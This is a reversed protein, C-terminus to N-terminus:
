DNLNQSHMAYAKDSQDLILPWKSSKTSCTSGIKSLIEAAKEGSKGQNAFYTERMIKRGIAKEQPKTLAQHCLDPLKNIDEFTDSAGRYIGRIEPISFNLNPNEFWIIPRDLLSYTTLISSHDSILLDSAQLLKETNEHPLFYANSFRNQISKLEKILNKNFAPTQQYGEWLWPHGTQVINYEPFVQCLLDFIDHGFTRLTSVSEWHSAILITTRDNLALEQRIEERPYPKNVLTDSKPFGIPFFARKQDFIGPELKEFHMREAQSLGFFIDYNKVLKIKKGMIGFGPGHHMGIHLANRKPYFSNIHSDIFLHWKKYVARNYPIYHRKFIDYENINNFNSEDVECSKDTTIHLKINSAQSLAEIVPVQCSFGHSNVYVFLVRTKKANNYFLDDITRALNIIKDRISSAEM